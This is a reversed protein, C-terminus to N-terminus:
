QSVLYNATFSRSVSCDQTLCLLCCSFLVLYIAGNIKSILIREQSAHKEGTRTQCWETMKEGGKGRSKIRQFIFHLSPWLSLSVWPLLRRKKKQFLLCENKTKIEKSFDSLVKKRGGNSHEFIRSAFISILHRCLNKICPPFILFRSVFYFCENRM